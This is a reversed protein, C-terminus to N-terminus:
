VKRVEWGWPKITAQPEDRTEPDCKVVYDQGNEDWKIEYYERGDLGYGSGGPLDSDDDWEDPCCYHTGWRGDYPEHGAPLHCGHSGWVIPCTQNM